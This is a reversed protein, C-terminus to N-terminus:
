SNQKDYLCIVKYPYEDAEMFVQPIKDVLDLATIREGFERSSIEGARGNVFTAIQAAQYPSLGRALLAAVIGTLVDGTGGVSMGPTGTKNLRYKEKYCIVDIPGKLITVTNYESTVKRCLEIRYDIDNIYTQTKHEIGLLRLVEGLHPTLIIKENLKIKTHAVHKLADADVVVNKDLKLLVELAEIVFDRTEENLGIGPGLVVSHPRTTKLIEKLEVINRQSFFEGKVSHVILNPSFSAITKAVSEPAAVFALDAGSRLAALAALAPAGSYLKSGGIVLIRGGVGKHANVPKRPVRYKVDGPGVYIEAEPPIGIEAIVLEGVYERAIILGPKLKHMTVTVDARVAEDAASGTDPDIGTPVDVAIKLGTSSNFVKVATRIPERLSGRVGVGLMADVLVDTDFPKLKGPDKVIVLNVSQNLNKIIKMNLLTDPSSILSPDYLLIITVKGGMSALHRAAVLGDGGNGGRGVFVIIERGYLDGGMKKKILQAIEKGANEMLLLLPIGLWVANAEFVRMDKVSVTDIVTYGTLTNM